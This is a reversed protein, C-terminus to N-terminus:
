PYPRRRSRVQRVCEKGGRHQEWRAAQVCATEAKTKRKRSSLTLIIPTPHREDTGKNKDTNTQCEEHLARRLGCRGRRLCSLGDMTRLHVIALDSSCVDSSWDSIRM